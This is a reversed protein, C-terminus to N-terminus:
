PQPADTVLTKVLNDWEDPTNANALPAADDIAVLALRAQNLARTVKYDGSAIAQRLIPLLRRHYLGCLPNVVGGPPIPLIADVAPDAETDLEALLQNLFDATLAPMDCAAILVWPTTTAALAAEIGGLPGIGPHLDPVIGLGLHGHCSPDGVLTVNGGCVSAVVSAIHQGLPRGGFNLLAKDTGMRTSRGGTLVFGSIPARHRSAIPPM